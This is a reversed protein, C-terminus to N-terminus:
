TDKKSAEDDAASWNQRYSWFPDVPNEEAKMRPIPAECFPCQSAERLISQGCAPCPRDIRDLLMLGFPGLALGYFFWHKPNGGRRGARKFTMVGAVIWGIISGVLLALALILWIM